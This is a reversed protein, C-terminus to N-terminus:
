NHNYQDQSVFCFQKTADHYQLTRIVGGYCDALLYGSNLICCLLNFLDLLVNGLTIVCFGLFSEREVFMKSSWDAIIVNCHKLPVQQGSRTPTRCMGEDEISSAASQVFQFLCLLTTFNQLFLVTEQLPKIIYMHWNIANLINIYQFNVM